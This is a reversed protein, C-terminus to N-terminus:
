GPPHAPRARRPGPVHSSSCPRNWTATVSAGSHGARRRGSPRHRQPTRGSRSRRAAVDNAEAAGQGVPEIFREGTLVRDDAADGVPGSRERHRHRMTTSPWTTSGDPNPHNPAAGPRRRAGSGIGGDSAQGRMWVFGGITCKRYATHSSECSVQVWGRPMGRTLHRGSWRTPSGSIVRSTPARVDGPRMSPREVCTAHIARMIEPKAQDRRLGVFQPQREAADSRPRRSVAPTSAKGPSSCADQLDQGGPTCPMNAGEAVLQCRQGGVGEAGRPTRETAPCRSTAPWRWISGRTTHSVAGGSRPTSMQAARPTAGQRGQAVRPRHRGRRRCLRGLGVGRRGPRRDTSRGRCVDRCQGVRLRRGAQGPLGRRAGSCTRPSSSRAM